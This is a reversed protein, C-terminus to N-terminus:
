YLIIFERLERSHIKRDEVVVGLMKLGKSYQDEWNKRSSKDDEYYKVLDNALKGLVSKDLKEALNGYFKDELPSVWEDERGEM